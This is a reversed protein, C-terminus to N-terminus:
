LDRLYALAWDGPIFIFRFFNMFMLAYLLIFGYPSIRELVKAANYPLVGYLIWHGDLPPVPIFNFLALALNIVMSFSLIEVVLDLMSSQRLLSINVSAGPLGAAQSLFIKLALLSGFSVTGALLNSGPGALSILIQDRRPKRLHVSNIPVPKAWGILPLRTFFQLLPFLVTGVPDIHAIPNLTVRGLARATHDGLHDAMWAHSAEHISLSFLLVAFQIIATGIDIGHLFNM